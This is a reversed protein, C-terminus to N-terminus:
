IMDAPAPRNLDKKAGPELERLLPPAYACCVHLPGMM